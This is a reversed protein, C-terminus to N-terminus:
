NEGVKGSLGEKKEFEKVNRSKRQNVKLFVKKKRVKGLQVVM